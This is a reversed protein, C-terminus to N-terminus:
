AKLEAPTKGNALHTIEKQQGQITGQIEALERTLELERHQVSEKLEELKRALNDVTAELRQIWGRIIIGLFALAVGAPGSNILASTIDPDNM